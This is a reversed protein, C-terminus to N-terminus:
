PDRSEPTAAARRRDAPQRGDEPGRGRVGGGGEARTARLARQVRARTSTSLTWRLNKTFFDGLDERAALSCAAYINDRCALYDSRDRPLPRQRPIERYLGSVFAIGGHKRQLHVLLGTMLDNVSTKPSWPLRPACWSNAWDYKEPHAIYEDLFAEMGRAFGARGRGAYHLDDVGPVQKPMVAAMLNNFAVTWWGWSDPGASTHYDIPPNMDEMWYNRAIEYFFVHDYTNKGAKVRDYLGKFFGDGVAIGLTGHNALGGGVRPSVEIRIRGLLPADLRPRRGTVRDYADFTRDFTAVIKAMVQPDRRDPREGDLVLAVRRGFWATVEPGCRIYPQYDREYRPGPVRDAAGAPAVPVLMAMVALAARRAWKMM